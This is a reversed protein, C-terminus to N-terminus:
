LKTKGKDMLRPQHGLICICNQDDYEGSQRLDGKNVGTEQLLKVLLEGKSEPTAWIIHYIINAGQM